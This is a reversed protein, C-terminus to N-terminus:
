DHSPGNDLVARVLAITIRRQEALAAADIAAVVRRAAAHSREMRTVLWPVVDPAPALQRDAFLKTLLAFLLGDDPAEITVAATAQLRSALDALGVTWRAPPQRAALLIRGRGADTRNLAHFLWEEAAAPLADADDIALAQGPAPLPVAPTIEAASLVTAGTRDAWIGMLHSKGSAEAGLLALRGQPWDQGLVMDHAARNAASVFFDAAGRAERGPLPFSLQRPM